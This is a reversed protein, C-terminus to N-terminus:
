GYVEDLNDLLEGYKHMFPYHNAKLYDVDEAKAAFELGKAMTSVETAGITLASSKVGHVLISYNELDANDYYTQIEEYKSTERFERIISEYFEESNLCYTMGTKVDLFSFRREFAQLVKNSESNEELDVSLNDLVASTEQIDDFSEDEKDEESDTMMKILNKPLYKLLMANLELERVPKSLYDTFGADIYDERAGQIANATLMIVPTNENMECNAKKMEVLTEIGDMDPMMHDLLIVDYRNISVKELCEKGSTVTDVNLKTEKLLGKIVKLNMDVDDVVLVRGKPCEFKNPLVEEEGEKSIHVYNAFDGLNGEARIQQPIRVTFESGKGYISDVEITGNMLDLFQKTIRLGLGTGEINKNRTEDFRSFADYLQDLNAKKIGIGTDKVSIILEMTGAKGEKWDATLLVMGSETYKIANTLLNTIIQRIRVEDGYLRNPITTNNEFLLDLNKDRARLFVMNYCESLVKSLEYEVPVLKMKGSEIKSFDLIDNILSLLGNGANDVNRAYELIAPDKAEKLIMANMGLVGNIPTRIEHSMNALFSSKAVNAEEAEIKADEADKKAVALTNRSTELEEMVEMLKKYDPTELAFMVVVTAVSSAFISLLIDPLFVAQVFSGMLEMVGFFLISYRRRKDITNWNRIAIFISDVIFFMPTIFVAYYLPGHIYSGSEDFYFVWHTFINAVILATYFVLVVTTFRYNERTSKVNMYSGIYIIVYYLLVAVLELYITNTIWNLWVPFKDPNSIEIATFVDAINACILMLVLRTFRYTSDSKVSYQLKMYGYIVILFIAAAVEYHINYILNM